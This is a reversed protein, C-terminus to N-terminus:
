SGGGTRGTRGGGSQGPSRSSWHRLRVSPHEFGYPAPWSMSRCRCELTSAAQGLRPQLPYRAARRTQGTTPASPSTIALPRPMTPRAAGRTVWCRMPPWSRPSGNAPRRPTAPPAAPPTPTCPKSSGATPPTIQGASASPPVGLVAYYDPEPENRGAMASVEGRADPVGSTLGVLSMTRNATPAPWLGAEDRAYSMGGSNDVRGDLPLYHHRAPPIPCRRWTVVVPCLRRRSWASCGRGGRPVCRVWMWRPSVVPRYKGGRLAPRSRM